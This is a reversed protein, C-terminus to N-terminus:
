PRADALVQAIAARLQDPTGREALGTLRGREASRFVVAAREPEVQGNSSASGVAADAPQAAEAPQPPRPTTTM